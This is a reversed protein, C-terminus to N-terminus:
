SNELCLIKKLKAEREYTIFMKEIYKITFYVDVSKFLIHFDNVKVVTYITGVSVFTSMDCGCFSDDICKFKDGVKFM